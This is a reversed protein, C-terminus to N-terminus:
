PQKTNKWKLIPEGIIKHDVEILGKKELANAWELILKPDDKLKQSAESIKIEKKEKILNLLRDIDTSIEM